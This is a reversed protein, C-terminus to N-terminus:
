HTVGIVEHHKQTDTDPGALSTLKRPWKTRQKHQTRHLPLCPGERDTPATRKLCHVIRDALMLELAFGYVNEPCPTSLVVPPISHCARTQSAKLNRCFLRCIVGLVCTHCKVPVYVSSGVSQDRRRQLRSKWGDSM